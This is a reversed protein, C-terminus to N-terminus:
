CIKVAEVYRGHLCMTAVYLLTTLKTDVNRYRRDTNGSTPFM